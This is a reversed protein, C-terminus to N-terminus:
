PRIVEGRLRMNKIVASEFGLFWDVESESKLVFVPTGQKTLRRIQARQGSSLRGTESKLEIFIAQGNPLIVLRDPVGSNGPSVFKYVICGLKTLGKVLKKEIDRERKEGM